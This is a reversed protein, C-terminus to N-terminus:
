ANELIGKKTLHTHVMKGLQRINVKVRPQNHNTSTNEFSIHKTSGQTNLMLSLLLGVITVDSVEVLQTGFNRDIICTEKHIFQGNYWSINYTDNLIKLLKTSIPPNKLKKNM